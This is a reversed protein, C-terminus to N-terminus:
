LFLIEVKVFITIGVVIVIVLLLSLKEKGYEVLKDFMDKIFTLNM